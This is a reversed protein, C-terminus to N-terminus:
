AAGTPMPYKMMGAMAYFSVLFPQFIYMHMTQMHEKVMRRKVAAGVPTGVNGATFIRFYELEEPTVDFGTIKNYHGLFGGDAKVSGMINTNSLLDMQAMWGLDERPDGMRANEWDILCTVHGDEYLFNSPNFDGHCLRIPVPKPKNRRLWLLADLWYPFPDFRIDEYGRLYYECTTDIYRDWTSPDIGENRPDDLRGDPNLLKPDTMHLQAIYECLETAVSEAQDEAPGGHFLASPAGSGRVREIVMAKEGFHSPDNAVFYCGPVPITTHQKVATILDHELQRDSGLIAAAPPPDKRLIMPHLESQGARVVKADFRYTERSYGGAIVAFDSVSIEAGPWQSSLFNRVNDQM